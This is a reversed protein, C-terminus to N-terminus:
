NILINVIKNTIVTSNNNNSNSNSDKGEKTIVMEKNAEKFAWKEGTQTYTMMKLKM